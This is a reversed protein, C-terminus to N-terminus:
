KEQRLIINYSKWTQIIIGVFILILIVLWLYSFHKVLIITFYTLLALSTGISIILGSKTNKLKKLSYRQAVFFVISIFLLISLTENM